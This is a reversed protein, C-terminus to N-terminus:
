GGQSADPLIVGNVRAARGEYNYITGASEFLNFPIRMGIARVRRFNIAIDPPSVIGVKLSGAQAAKHLIDAAYIAALHANSEFSVGISLVASDDGPRVLEPVASLVPINGAVSHITTIQNFLSTSGTMWFVSNELKPDTRQMSPIAKAVLQKVEEEVNKPNKVELQLTRINLPNAYAALPKAQTEMASVNTADVLVGINKLNPKVQLIYAMQVDIPMNLSTFAFNSGSGSSYDRAQGLAVPDKSCVTVVPIRGGQYNEWLWATSESGMAVILSTDSAEARKLAAAAAKDDGKYNVIDFGLRMGKDNFVSLMKSIAVDYASSARPYLVMVRPVAQLEFGLVRIVVRNPDGEVESVAWDTDIAPDYKFWSDYAKVAQAFAVRIPTLALAGAGALLARRSPVISKM